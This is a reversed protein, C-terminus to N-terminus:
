FDSYRLRCTGVFSCRGDRSQVTWYLNNTMVSTIAGTTVSDDYSIPVECKVNFDVCKDVPITDYTGAADQGVGPSTVSIKKTALVKFRGSNALAQFSNIDDTELLKTAAFVAGNTQQDQVLTFKVTDSTVPPSASSSLLKLIGHVHIKKVTIKRGVRQSETDGQAIVGLNFITMTTAINADDINTDLFKLEGSPLRRPAVARPPARPAAFLASQVYRRRAGIGPLGGGRVGYPKYVYPM